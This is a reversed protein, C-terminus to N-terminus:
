SLEGRRIGLSRRIFNKSLSRRRCSRHTCDCGRASTRGGSHRAQTTVVTGPYWNTADAAACTVAECREASADASRTFSGDIRRSTADCIYGGAELDPITARTASLLSQARSVDLQTGRGGELRARTIRLSEEQNTANRRAVELRLQAGRLEFYNRAVEATVTVHTDYLEAEAAQVLASQAQVGRRVRGFFDLEWFADFGADYYDQDRDAETFQNQRESARVNTAGGGATITPALDLRAEGRLARAESLKSVAIRVDHNARLSDEILETLLPDNFSTWFDSEIEAHSIQVADTAVFEDATAVEPRRYDPGVACAALAGDCCHGRSGNLVSQSGALWVSRVNRAGSSRFNSASYVAATVPCIRARSHCQHLRPLFPSAARAATICRSVPSSPTLCTVCCRAKM